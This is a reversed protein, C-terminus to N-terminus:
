PTRETLQGDNIHLVRGATAAVAADHTIVILTVGNANLGRLLELIERGRESDLNGTPEDAIIVQPETALARAIAVRQRQGGSLQAPRHGLRDALGVAALCATARQRRRRSPMRALVLPMMVNELATATNQLNFSQFVFGVTRNRYASLQRDRTRALEVGAVRVTGRDPVDLGGIINAFTSKGSGSPGTVAVFDGASITASVNDLARIVDDGMRYTRTVNCLAVVEAM